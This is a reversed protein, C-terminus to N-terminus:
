NFEMLNDGMRGLLFGLCPVNSPAMDSCKSRFASIPSFCKFRTKSLKSAVEPNHLMTKRRSARGSGFALKFLINVKRCVCSALNELDKERNGLSSSEGVVLAGEGRKYGPVNHIDRPM